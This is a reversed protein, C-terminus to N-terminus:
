PIPALDFYSGKNPMSYKILDIKKGKPRDRIPAQKPVIGACLSYVGVAVGQAIEDQRSTLLYRFRPRALYGLEIFANIANVFLPMTWVSIYPKGLRQDAHYLNNIGLSYLIYRIIEASAYYNDGGFGELGGDRKYKEYVSKERVWYKGALVFKKASAAYPSNDPHTRAWREWGIHDRYPWTVMNYRYGRFNDLDADGSAKLPYGTFYLMVDNLFWQYGTRRSSEDFWDRYPSSFFYSRGQKEGQLDLLGSHLFDFPPVIVPNMGMFYAAGKGAAHLSVVIQPRRANIYSLRGPRMIGRADPYDFIRFEGNPDERRIIENRCRSDSRSMDCQIYVRDYPVDTFRELVPYFKSFDGNEGCDLLIDYAKSAIEYVLAHEEIGRFSAGERFDQLYTRTVACYRDGNRCRDPLAVGGHGPDLMVRFVPFEHRVTKSPTFVAAACICAVTIGYIIRKFMKASQLAM